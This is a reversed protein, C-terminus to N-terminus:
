RRRRGSRPKADTPESGVTEETGGESAEAAEEDTSEASAKEIPASTEDTTAAEGSRGTPSPTREWRTTEAGTVEETQRASVPAPRERAEERERGEPRRTDAV